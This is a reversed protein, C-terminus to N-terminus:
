AKRGIYWHGEHEFIKYDRKPHNKRVLSKKTYWTSKKGFIKLTQNVSMQEITEEVTLPIPVNINSM